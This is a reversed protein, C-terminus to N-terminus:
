WGISYGSVNIKDTFPIGHDQMVRFVQYPLANADNYGNNDRIHALPMYERGHLFYDVNKRHFATKDIGLSVKSHSVSYLAIKFLSEVLKSSRKKYMSEDLEGKPFESVLLDYSDSIKRLVSADMQKQLEMEKIDDRSKDLDIKMESILANKIILQGDSDSKKKEYEQKVVELKQEFSEHLQKRMSEGETALKSIASQIAQIGQKVVLMDGPFAKVLDNNGDTYSDIKNDSSIGAKQAEREHSDRDPDNLGKSSIATKDQYLYRAGLIIGAAILSGLLFSVFYPLTFYDVPPPPPIKFYQDIFLSAKSSNKYILRASEEFEGVNQLDYTSTKGDHSTLTLKDGEYQGILYNPKVVVTINEIRVSTSSDKGPAKKPEKGQGPIKNHRDAQREEKKNEDSGRSGVNPKSSQASTFQAFFLWVVALVGISSNRKM